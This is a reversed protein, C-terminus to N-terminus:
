VGTDIWDVKVYKSGIISSVLESIEKELGGKAIPLELFRFEPLVSSKIDAPEVGYKEKLKRKVEEHESDYYTTYYIRYLKKHVASGERDPM